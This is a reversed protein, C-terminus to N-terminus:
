NHKLISVLDLFDLATKNIIYEKGSIMTLITFESNNSFKFSEIYKTQIVNQSKCPNNKNEGYQGLLLLNDGFEGVFKNVNNYTCDSIAISYMLILTLIIKM